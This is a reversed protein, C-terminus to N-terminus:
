ISLTLSLLASEGHPQKSDIGEFGSATDFSVPKSAINSVCWTSIDQSFAYAKNFMSDMGAFAYMRSINQYLPPVCASIRM